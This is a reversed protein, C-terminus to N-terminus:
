TLEGAFAKQLLSQRLDDLDKLKSKYQYELSVVKTELSKLKAVIASQHGYGVLPIELHKLSKHYIGVVNTTGSKIRELGEKVFETWFAYAVYEANVDTTFRVRMINNNFVTRERWSPEYICSKGVLEYSNRTNFLFDGTKLAYKELEEATCEVKSFQKDVFRGSNGINNM